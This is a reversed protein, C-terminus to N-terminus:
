FAKVFWTPTVVVGSPTIPSGDVRRTREPNLNKKDVMEDSKM